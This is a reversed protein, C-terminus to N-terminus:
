VEDEDKTWVCRVCDTADRALEVDANSTGRSPVKDLPWTFASYPTYTDFLPHLFLFWMASTCRCVYPSCLCVFVVVFFCRVSPSLSYCYHAVTASAVVTSTAFM